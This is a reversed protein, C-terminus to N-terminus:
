SRSPWCSGDPSVRGLPGPRGRPLLGDAPHDRRAGHLQAPRGRQRRRVPPQPGAPRPQLASRPRATRGGRLRGHDGGRRWCGLPAPRADLGVALRVHAARAPLRADPVLPRHRARRPARRAPRRSRPAAAAPLGLRGGRHRDPSQRSLDLALRFQRTLFGGLPPGVSLGLYVAMVNIGLARGRERPPFVATVIAASTAVLLAAGAGQLARSAVLWAANMSLASSLSGVTFVAVGALYYHMRGHRDALRGLPILLVAM